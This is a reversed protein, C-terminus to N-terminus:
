MLPTTLLLKDIFLLINAYITEIRIKFFNMITEGMTKNWTWIQKKSTNIIDVWLKIKSLEDNQLHCLDLLNCCNM